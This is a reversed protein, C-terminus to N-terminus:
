TTGGQDQSSKMQAWAMTAVQDPTQAMAHAAQISEHCLARCAASPLHKIDLSGRVPWGASLLVPLLRPGDSIVSQSITM